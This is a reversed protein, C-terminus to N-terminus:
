CSALLLYCQQYQRLSHMSHLRPYLTTSTDERKLHGYSGAGASGAPNQLVPVPGADTALDVGHVARQVRRAVPGGPGPFGLGGSGQASTEEASNTAYNTCVAAAISRPVPLGDSTEVEAGNWCHM